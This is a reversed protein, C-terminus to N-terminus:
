KGERLAKLRDACDCCGMKIGRRVWDGKSDMVAPDPAHQRWEKELAEIGALLRDRDLQLRLVEENAELEGDLSEGAENMPKVLTGFGSDQKAKIYIRAPVFSAIKRLKLNEGKLREVEARAAALDARLDPINQSQGNGGCIVCTATGGVIKVVGNGNCTPCLTM